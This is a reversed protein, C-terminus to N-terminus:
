ISMKRNILGGQINNINAKPKLNVNRNILGGQTNNINAKPKLYVM